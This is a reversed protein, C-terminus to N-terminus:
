LKLMEEIKKSNKHPGVIALNLKNNQFVDKSVRLIDELTVADVKAFVEKPTLIKEKHMEQDIFFMAMDDSAEFGMVARGKVYDKAKQLEKADVKELSIKKYEELIAKITQEVKKHDIGAQTAIYGCDQYTDVSTHVFYALGQRERIKIFLRSSMNGGLIVSLMALVYRDKHNQHYARTGIILHTQDTKKFKIHVKPSSQKEVVKKMAVKEGVQFDSFYSKIQSVIKKEDFKGAVCVVTENASYYKKMYSVFDKRKFDSITKKYGVIGRGLSQDTYLMKEFEDGVSRRPEDEYMSLEQLIPGRERDIEVQEIKSNLFIDSVVDLAKEIHRSDVKAYYATKDKSTFANFEGGISDLEESISQATPRKTTGKFLMHEIFHSLGAQKETEYRSGVGVMLMVTATQTGSMPITLIRLGNKLTTKKYNM